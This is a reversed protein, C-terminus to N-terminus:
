LAKIARSLFWTGLWPEVDDVTFFRLLETTNDLTGHDWLAMVVGERSPQGFVAAGIIESDAILGFADGSKRLQKLYHRAEILRRAEDFSIPEVTYPGAADTLRLQTMAPPDDWTHLVTM